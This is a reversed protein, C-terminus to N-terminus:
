AAGGGNGKGNRDLAERIKGLLAEETVPKELVLDDADAAEFAYGTFYIVKARPALERLRSRLERGAIGPMSVDLLVLAVESAVSRDALVDLAEQGSAAARADYGAMRLMLSVVSRISAEDDVILIRETGRVAQAETRAREGKPVPVAECGLYLSFTAGRDRESECAIWGGHEHVIARTTALGLGTGKGVDKTTFFPDFARALTATDMGVGNDSVRIRVHEGDRGELEPEGARVIEVSVTVRPDRVGTGSGVADRANILVNLLAQEIQAADVRSRAGHDYRGDFTIGRDFTTRCFAVAREVLAGISEVTRATPRNRGAYTMLQRVLEAARQGSRQAELLLPQMEAPAKRAALEINPLVGMLMNNFNHAIGATLQGVAELKQAQRLQEDRLKRDTVDIVAGLVVDREADHLVTGKGFIWRVAGDPRVIRHEDEWGGSAVGNAVLAGVHERDDPHVLRLYGERGPPAGAALGFIARLSDDWLVEDTRLDWSWLGIGTAETSMRLKEGSERLAQLAISREAEARKRETIDINVGLTGVIADGIRIPALVNHFYRTASGIAYALDGQVINGALARRNNDLWVDVVSAPLDMDEPRKHLLDGWNARATANQSFCVGERDRAWFDFPLGEITAAHLAQSARLEDEARRARATLEAEAARLRALEARLASLEDETTGM